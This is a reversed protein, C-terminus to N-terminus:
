SYPQSVNMLIVQTNINTSTPSSARYRAIVSTGSSNTYNVFFYRNQQFDPHFALGLLGREGGSRVRSTIDLFPTSALSGSALNIIRIRGRQEVVYLRSPDGPAAQIDIPSSLGSSVLEATIEEGRAVPIGDCEFAPLVQTLCVLLLAGPVLRLLKM